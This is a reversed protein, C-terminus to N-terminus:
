ARRDGDRLDEDGEVEIRESRVSDSVQVNETHTEKELGVEEVAVTEKSVVPRESELDMEVEQEQFAKGDSVVEGDVPRRVVHASETEVPVSVTQEEEDVYKRLRARGTEQRETGVNLHEEHRVMTADADRDAVGRDRDAIDRDAVAREDRDGVHGAAGATGAAATGAAVDTRDTAVGEGQGDVGYYRYLEQEQEVGLHEGADVRPADKIQDKSYQVTLGDETVTAGSLPVFSQSTGFLGTNVTAWEPENTRDDLYIEEISGVKDGDVSYLDGDRLTRLQDKSIM